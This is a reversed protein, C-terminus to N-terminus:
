IKECSAMELQVIQRIRTHWLPWFNMLDVMFQKKPKQDNM